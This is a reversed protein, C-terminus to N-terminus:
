FTMKVAARVTQAQVKGAAGSTGYEVEGSVGGAGRARLGLSTNLTGRTSSAQALTSTMGAGVDSYYMSQQYAGDLAQRYEARATPTLVGWNMPVDYAGRLGVTGGVSHFNMTNYTLLESSAGLESYSQLQASMFDARVYPMLRLAHYKVEYGTSVAGFWYGGSRNGAVTVGDDAVFRRNDFSLQGYGIAADIFWPDFYKWSAYLTGNVSTANTRTGYSGVTTHDNGYGVAAGVVLDNHVQWDVGATLGATTFRSSAVTGDPMQSGFQVSGATWGAMRSAWGGNAACGNPDPMRRAVQGAPSNPVADYSLTAGPLPSYPSAGPYPRGNMDTPPPLGVGFDVLCPNFDGHLSELHRSVNDIQASAFRRTAAAQANVLGIVEPDLAPDPRNVLTYARSGTNGLSDLASITFAFPGAGTLTGTIVGTSTNLRLGPPLTGASVSYVYPGTGGVAVVTASYPRGTIAAPLTAPNVTLTNTGTNVTYPRTGFNNFADTARITFTAPGAGSPTGTIAGTASNLSLGAPLAGASVAFTYPAGVGGSASVTQSYPVGRTASPLSAPNVTLANTGINVSYARTGTNPSTDTAQVTFNFTGGASPTGTIAGTAPNLSLSTPLAGAIVSYSYFGNGGSAVITQNYPTGQAGAPLSTPNITLPATNITVSYVRSGTNAGSDTAQITFGYTGAVTPTGTLGGGAALSLGTPLTGATVAFTYPAAGGTATVIQNYPTGTTGNPLSVPNVIIPVTVNLAYIQTGTNGANDIVSVTFGFAGGSSPTGSITGGSSLSLGPPLSGGTISFVNGVGSGGSASLVQNYAVGQTGPPLPSGPSITIGGANGISFSYPRFGSNGDTDVATITFTGTSAAGPIGQLLGLPTMTIGAPFAGATRTFTYSGNGGVATLQQSYAVGNTGVPITNPQLTLTFTQALAGANWLAVFAAFVFGCGRLTARRWSAQRSDPFTM